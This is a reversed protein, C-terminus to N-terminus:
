FFLGHGIPKSEVVKRQKFKRKKERSPTQASNEISPGPEIAASVDASANSNSGLTNRASIAQIMKSRRVNEMYFKEEKRVLSQQQKQRQEKIKKEYAIQETLNNWKFKPLYKMCWIDSYYYSTKKGGIIQNNLLLCVQKAVKKDMFEVWGEVYNIRKNHKYKKRKLAIKPDEPVLYIRGLRGYKELLSRLKQPKMFPPIRSLYIVGTNLQKKQFQELKEATLLPPINLNDPNMTENDSTDDYDQDSFSYVGTSNENLDKICQDTESNRSELSENELSFDSNPSSNQQM